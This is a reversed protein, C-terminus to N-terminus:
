ALTGPLFSARLDDLVVLTFADIKTPVNRSTSLDPEDERVLWRDPEIPSGYRLNTGLTLM